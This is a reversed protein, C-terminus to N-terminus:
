QVLKFDFAMLTRKNLFAVSKYEPGLLEFLLSRINPQSLMADLKLKGEPAQSKISVLELM